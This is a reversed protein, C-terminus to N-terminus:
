VALEAILDCLDARTDVYQQRRDWLPSSYDGDSLAVRALTHGVAYFEHAWGHLKYWLALREDHTLTNFM